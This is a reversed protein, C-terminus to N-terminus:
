RRCLCRPGRGAVEAEGAEVGFALLDPLAIQDFVVALDAEVVAVGGGGQEIAIAEVDLHDM